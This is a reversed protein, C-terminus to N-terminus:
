LYVAQLLLVDWKGSSGSVPQLLMDVEVIGNITIRVFPSWEKDPLTLSTILRVAVTMM